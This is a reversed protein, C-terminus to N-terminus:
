LDPTNEGPASGGSPGGEILWGGHYINFRNQRAFGILIMNLDRALEVARDTAASRSIVTGLGAKSAKILIETSVRGTTLILGAEESFGARLYQGIVKDLANHRGVDEAFFRQRGKVLCASHVAGTQRFLDSQRNFEEMLEIILGAGIAPPDAKVARFERLDDVAVSGLGFGSSRARRPPASRGTKIEAQVKLGNVSIDSIDSIGGIAGETFLYGIALFDLQAPTAMVSVYPRNNVYIEVLREEAVLDKKWNFAGSKYKLIEYERTQSM